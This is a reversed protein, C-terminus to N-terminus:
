SSTASRTTAAFTAEQAPAAVAGSLRRRTDGDEGALPLEEDGIREEPGTRPRHHTAVATVVDAVEYQETLLAATAM